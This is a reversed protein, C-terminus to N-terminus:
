IYKIMLLFVAVICLPPWVPASPKASNCGDSGCHGCFILQANPIASVMSKFRDCADPTSKIACARTLYVNRETVQNTENEFVTRSVTIETKICDYEGAGNSSFKTGSHHSTVGLQFGSLPGGHVM